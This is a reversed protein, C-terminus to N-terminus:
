PGDKAPQDIFEREANKDWDKIAYNLCRVADRHWYAQNLRFGLKHYKAQQRHWDRLENLTM